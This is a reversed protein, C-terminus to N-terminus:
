LFAYYLCCILWFFKLSNIIKCILSSTCVRLGVERPTKFGLGIDRHRRLVKKKTIGPKNKRNLNIGFQKQFARENQGHNYILLLKGSM